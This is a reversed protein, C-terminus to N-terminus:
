DETTGNPYYIKVPLTNLDGSNAAVADLTLKIVSQEKGKPEFEFGSTCLAYEFIVIIKKSGDATVGVFGFNEIYDGDTITAKDEFLDFGTVNSTGEAFLTGMKLVDKNIEAFSVEATATGGQKVTQGKFKVLAGDLDLDICEGKISIKGGGSTAGLVTGSWANSEWKLGSYYTGAGLLINSPTASTIGHNVISM